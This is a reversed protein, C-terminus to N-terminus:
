SSPTYFWIVRMSNETRFIYFDVLLYVEPGSNQFTHCIQWVEGHPFKSRLTADPHRGASPMARLLGRSLATEPKNEKLFIVSFQWINYVKTSLAANDTRGSSAENNSRVQGTKWWLAILQLSHSKETHAPYNEDFPRVAM